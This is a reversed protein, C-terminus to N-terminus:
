AFVHVPQGKAVREANINDQIMRTAGARTLPYNSGTRANTLKVARKTNDCIYGKTELVEAPALTRSGSPHKSDLMTFYEEVTFHKVLFAIFGARNGYKFRAVFKGDYTVYGADNTFNAKILKTM